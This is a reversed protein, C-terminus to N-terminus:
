FDANFFRSKKIHQEVVVSGFNLSDLKFSNVIWNKDTLLISNDTFQPGGLSPIQKLNEDLGQSTAKTLAEKRTWLLFFNEPSHSIFVTEAPSFYDPLISPFDFSPDIKETDVGVDSNAIAILVWDTTHSVNYKLSSGEIYPKKNANAKFIIESANQHLYRTLILRLGARSVIFRVRDKQQMYRNARAIEEPQLIALYKDIDASQNAINIRWIDVGEDINFNCQSAVQWENDELFNIEVEIQAM